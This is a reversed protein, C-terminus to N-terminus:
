DTLMITEKSRLFFWAIYGIPWILLALYYGMILALIGAAIFVLPLIAGKWGTGRTAADGYIWLISCVYISSFIIFIFVQTASTLSLSV